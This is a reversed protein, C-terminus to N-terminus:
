QFSRRNHCDFADHFFGDPPFLQVKVGRNVPEFIVPDVRAEHNMFVRGFSGDLGTDLFDDVVRGQWGDHESGSPAVRVDDQVLGVVQQPKVLRFVGVIM